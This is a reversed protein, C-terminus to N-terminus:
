DKKLFIEECINPYVIIFEDGGVRFAHDSFYKLLVTAARSIMRDGAEHGYRDNNRKPRLDMYAAGINEHTQTWDFELLMIYENRNYLKTLMDRSSLYRLWQQQKQMDLSNSIFFRISSLLTPDDYHATPNDVGLFGVM